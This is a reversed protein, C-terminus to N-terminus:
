LFSAHLCAHAHAHAQIYAALAQVCHGEVGERPAAFQSISPGCQALPVLSIRRGGALCRYSHTHEQRGSAEPGDQLGCGPIPEERPRAGLAEGASRLALSPDSVGDTSPLLNGRRMGRPIRCEDASRWLPAGRGHTRGLQTGRAHQQRWRPHHLSLVAAPGGDTAGGQAVCLQSADSPLRRPCGGAAGPCPDGLCCGQWQKWLGRLM